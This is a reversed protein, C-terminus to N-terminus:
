EPEPPSDSWKLVMWEDLIDDMDNALARLKAAWYRVSEKSIQRRQEVDGLLVQIGQFESSLNELEQRADGVLGLHEKLVSGLRNKVVEAVADGGASM